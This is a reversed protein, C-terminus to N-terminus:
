PDAVVPQALIWLSITTYGVMLALMPLQSLLASRDSVFARAATVHALYVALVHGVVITAVATYWVFKASVVGIDVRYHTTRFLNWGFGLPDSALPVVLQGATLLFSLYHALHYALAIPILTLVFRRALEVAGRRDAAPGPGAGVAAAMLRGFLLYVALFLAAFLVLALTLVATLAGGGSSRRAAPGLEVGPLSGLAEVLGQWAPTETLGDFTVTSLMLLVFVMVSWPVPGDGLLGVAYPRLNWAREAPAAREYCAYCGVCGGDRSACPAAPCARCLGPATVRVELPAFRALLGFVLAFAEGHRLWRERGFVLMGAWTIASYALAAVALNRPTEGGPWALEIWVFALFLCVAPWAGLGHPYPRGRSLERGPRLRRYLAEAWLFGTRWPNILAWVDGVLASVYAVGVWWVVWVLTPAINKFPNQTGILGAVVILVFIAFSLVRCLFLVAPHALARGVRFRLLDLRPYGSLGPAARRFAVMVVFTGAVATAAAALYLWLPIPLDYPQAFGHARAPGACALSLALVLGIRGSPGGRASRRDDADHIHEPPAPLAATM